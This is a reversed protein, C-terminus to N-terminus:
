SSLIAEVFNRVSSSMILNKEFLRIGSNLTSTCYDHTAM